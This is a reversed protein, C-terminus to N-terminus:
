FRVEEKTAGNSYSEWQDRPVKPGVRYLPPLNSSKLLYGLDRMRAIHDRLTQERVLNLERILLRIVESMPIDQDDGYRQKLEQWIIEYAQIINRSM